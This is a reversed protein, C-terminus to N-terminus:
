DDIVVNKIDPRNDNIHQLISVITPGDSVSAYNGGESLLTGYNTRSGKFPLPKDMVNLIATEKPDLGIIDLEKVQGLSTSKGSGTSGIVCYTTAM